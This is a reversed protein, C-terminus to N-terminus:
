QGHGRRRPWRGLYRERERAAHRATANEAALVDSLRQVGHEPTWRFAHQTAAGTAADFVTASGVIANGDASVARAISSISGGPLAGLALMGTAAEWRFAERSTASTGSGVVVRGDASVAIAHSDLSGGPLDGLATLGSAADWRFVEVGASGQGQGVVVSGDRSVARAWSSFSGGPLDSLGSISGDFRFAEVGSAAQSRGVVVSGDAAVAHAETLSGTAALQGLDVLGQQADWRFARRSAGAGSTGSTGVVVSGDASVGFAQSFSAVPFTGLTEFRPPQALAAPAFALCVLALARRGALDPLKM